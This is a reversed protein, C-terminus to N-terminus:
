FGRMEQCHFTLPGITQCLQWQIDMHGKPDELQWRQNGWFLALLLRRILPFPYEMAIIDSLLDM